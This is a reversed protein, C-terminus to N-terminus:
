PPRSDNTEQKPDEWQGRSSFNSSLLKGNKKGFRVLMQTPTDGNNFSRVMLEAM